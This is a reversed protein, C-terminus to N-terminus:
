GSKEDPKASYTCFNFCPHQLAFAVEIRLPMAKVVQEAKNLLVAM